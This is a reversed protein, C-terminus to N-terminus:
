QINFLINESQSLIYCFHEESTASFLISHLHRTNYCTVVTVFLDLHSLTKNTSQLHATNTVNNMVYYKILIYYPM